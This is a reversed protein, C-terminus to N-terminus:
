EQLEAELENIRSRAEKRKSIISLAEATPEEGEAIKIVVYDTQSLFMKLEQIEQQILEEHTPEYKPNEQIQFYRYLKIVKNTKSNDLVDPEEVEKEERREVLEILQANNENCWHKADEFNEDYTCDIYEIINNYNFEQTMLISWKNDM